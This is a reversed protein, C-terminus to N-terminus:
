ADPQVFIGPSTGTIGIDRNFDSIIATIYNTVLTATNPESGDSIIDITAKGESTLKSGFKDEFVVVAKTKGKKLM